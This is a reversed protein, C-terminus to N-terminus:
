DVLFEEDLVSAASYVRDASAVGGIKLSELEV